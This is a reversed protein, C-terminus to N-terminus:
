LSLHKAFTTGVICSPEIFTLGGTLIVGKDDFVPFIVIQLSLHKAFTTGVISIRPPPFGEQYIKSNANSFLSIYGTVAFMGM